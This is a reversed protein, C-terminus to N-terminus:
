VPHSPRPPDGPELKPSKSSDLLEQEQGKTWAMRDPGALKDFAALAMTTVSAERSEGRRFHRRPLRRWRRRRRGSKAMSPSLGGEALMVERAKNERM